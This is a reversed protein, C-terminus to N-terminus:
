HLDQCITEQKFFGAFLFLSLNASRLIDSIIIIVYIVFLNFHTLKTLKTSKSQDLSVEM